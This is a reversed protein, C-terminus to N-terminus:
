INHYTREGSNPSPQPPTWWTHNYSYRWASFTKIKWKCGLWIPSNHWCFACDALALQQLAVARAAHGVLPPLHCLPNTPPLQILCPHASRSQAPFIAFWAWSPYSQYCHHIGFGSGVNGPRIWKGSAHHVQALLQAPAPGLQGMAAPLAELLTNRRLYPRLSTLGGAVLNRWPHQGCQHWQM